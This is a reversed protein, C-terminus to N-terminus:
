QQGSIKDFKDISIGNEIIEQRRDYILTDIYNWYEKHKLWFDANVNFINQLLDGPYYDGEAFLDAQLKEIALPILYKLGIQQGIMIRLDEISFKKLQIKRLKHCTVVVHSDYTADSWYDKELNELTKEQWNNELKIKLDKRL